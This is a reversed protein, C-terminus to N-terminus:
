VFFPTVSEYFKPILHTNRRFFPSLSGRWIEVTKPSVKKPYTRKEFVHHKKGDFVFSINGLNPLYSRFHKRAISGRRISAIAIKNLLFPDGLRESLLRMNEMPPLPLVLEYGDTVLPKGDSYVRNFLFWLPWLNRQRAFSLLQEWTPISVVLEDSTLSQAFEDGATEKMFQWGYERVAANNDAAVFVSVWSRLSHPLDKLQLVAQVMADAPFKLMGSVALSELQERPPIDQLTEESLYGKALEGYAQDSVTLAHGLIGVDDMRNAAILNKASQPLDPHFVNFPNIALEEMFLSGQAPTKYDAMSLPLAHESSATSDSDKRTRYETVSAPLQGLAVPKALPPTQTGGSAGQYEQIIDEVNKPYRVSTKVTPGTTDVLIVTDSDKVAPVAPPTSVAPPAALGIKKSKAKKSKVPIPKSFQEQLKVPPVYVSRAPFEQVLQDPPPATQVTQDTPVSPAAQDASAAEVPAPPAATDMVEDSVTTASRAEMDEPEPTPVPSLTDMAEAVPARIDPHMEVEHVKTPAEQPIYEKVGMFSKLFKELDVQTPNKQGTYHVYFDKVISPEVTSMVERVLQFSGQGRLDILYRHLQQPTKINKLKSSVETVAILNSSSKMLNSFNQNVDYPTAVSIGVSDLVFKKVPFPIFRAYKMPDGVEERHNLLVDSVVDGATEATVRNSNFLSIAARMSQVFFESFVARRASPVNNFDINHPQGLYDWMYVLDQESTTRLLDKVQNKATKYAVSGQKVGNIVDVFKQAKTQKPTWDQEMSKTSGVELNAMNRLWQNVQENAAVPLPKEYSKVSGPLSTSASEPVKASSTTKGSPQMVDFPGPQPTPPPLVKEKVSPVPKNPYQLPDQYIRKMLAFNLMYAMQFLRAYKNYESISRGAGALQKAKKVLADFMAEPDEARKAARVLTSTIYSNARDAM